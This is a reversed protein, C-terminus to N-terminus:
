IFVNGLENFKECMQVEETDLYVINQKKIDFLQISKENSLVQDLLYWLKGKLNAHMLCMDKTNSPEASCSKQKLTRIYKMLDSGFAVVLEAYETHDIQPVWELSEYRKLNSGNDMKENIKYKMLGWIFEFLLVEGPQKIDKGNCLSHIMDIKEILKEINRIDIGSLEVLDLVIQCCEELNEFKSFYYGYNNLIQNQVKGTDLRVRFSIFKRLYRETDVQEGYIEKVSHELQTSDIALLVIVNDLGEFMHHLRELVKIAYEPMCRDLEDVVLLVTKNKSLERIQNRTFDLTKKFAFMNDFDSPNGIKDGKNEELEKCLEVLNIGIKNKTFEGAIKGLVTKLDTYEKQLAMEAKNDKGRKELMASVIAVAPEEYYDYQWCNYHFVYFRDDQTEENQLVELEKELQELIYTKGYGWKGDLAFVRGQKQESLLVLIQEIDSMIKARDLIDIKETQSM